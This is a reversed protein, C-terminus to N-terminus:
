VVVVTRKKARLDQVVERGIKGLGCVVTHDAALDLRGATFSDVFARAIVELGVLVFLAVAAYRAFRLWPNTDEPNGNLVVTQVASYVLDEVSKRDEVPTTPKKDFAQQYGIIGSCLSALFVVVFVISAHRRAWHNRQIMPTFRYKALVLFLAVFLAAVGIEVWPLVGAAGGGLTSKLWDFM